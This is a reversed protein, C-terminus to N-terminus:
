KVYSILGKILNDSYGLLELSGGSGRPYMLGYGTTSAIYRLVRKVAALHEQRPDEMFRSLYCVSYTLDPRMHLLYRLSEILSRYETSSVAPSTNDKPLRLRAQMPTTCPNCGLM